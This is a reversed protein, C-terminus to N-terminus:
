FFVEREPLKDSLLADYLELMASVYREVVYRSAVRKAEESLRRYLELNEILKVMERAFASPEPPVVFSASGLIERSPVAPTVIAPLGFYAAELHAISLGEYESPVLLAYSQALISAVDKRYGLFLVKGRLSLREVLSELRGREGGEGVIVLQASPFRSVVRKFAKIAVDFRKLKVLRGLCVFNIKGQLIPLTEKPVLRNPNICNYFVYHPRKFLNHEKEVMNFVSKSVSLFLNTRWSLLKNIARRELRKEKKVTHIHTIVKVKKCFCAALRAFYDASFHMTHVINPNEARLLKLLKYWTDLRYTKINKLSSTLNVVPIGADKFDKLKVGTGSLNVVKFDVGRKFLELSVDFLLNEIGGFPLGGVVFLTKLAVGKSV